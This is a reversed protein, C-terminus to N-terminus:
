YCGFAPVRDFPIALRVPKGTRADVWDNGQRKLPPLNVYACSGGIGYQSVYVFLRRATQKTLHAARLTFGDADAKNIEAIKRAGALDQARGAHLSVYVSDFGGFCVNEGPACYADKAARGSVVIPDGDARRVLGLAIGLAVLGILVVLILRSRSM